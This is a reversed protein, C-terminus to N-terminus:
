KHKNPRPLISNLRSGAWGLFMFFLCVAFFFWHNLLNNKLSYDVTEFGMFASWVLVFYIFGTLFMKKKDPKKTGKNKLTKVAFFVGIWGLVLTAFCILVFYWNNLMNNEIFSKISEVSTNLIFFVVFWLLFEQWKKM